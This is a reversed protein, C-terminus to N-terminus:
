KKDEASTDTTSLINPIVTKDYYSPQPKEALIVDGKRFTNEVIFYNKESASINIKVKIIKGNRIVYVYNGDNELSVYSKNIQVSYKFDHKVLVTVYANPILTKGINKFDAYVAISNSDSNISNDTYKFKGIEPFIKGDALKIYIRDNDFLRPKSNESLLEKDTISFVVRIPNFQMISFLEGSSPSVYNGSTLSVNGVFGDIPSRIVTYDYNVKASELNAKAYELKAQASLFQTEANDYESESVTNKGAKQIRKYYTEANQLDAKAQLLDAYAAELEARYQSQELTLLIDGKKVYEGGSVTIKDIFGNIFPQIKAEHVPIVRGVYTQTFEIDHPNIEVANLALTESVPAQKLSASKQYHWLFCYYGAAFAIGMLLLILLFWLRKLM